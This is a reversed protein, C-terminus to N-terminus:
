FTLASWSFFLSLNLGRLWAKMMGNANSESGAGSGSILLEAETRYKNLSEEQIAAKRRLQELECELEAVAFSNRMEEAPTLVANLRERELARPSQVPQPSYFASAPSATLPTPGASLDTEM